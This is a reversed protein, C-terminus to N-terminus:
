HPSKMKCRLLFKMTDVGDAYDWIEPLQAYGPNVQMHGLSSPLSGAAVVCQISEMQSTLLNELEQMSNYREYYLNAVPSSIQASEKVLLFNNDLFKEKNLLYISRYYTYNNFYKNHHIVNGYKVIAAFFKDLNYDKPIFIKSVSRCGLGFYLFIDQGIGDLDACTENGNLVAVANRNKRIIHPYKRFYYEFYRATNNSGTAIYAQASKLPFKTFSIRSQFGPEIECLVESVAPLLFEDDSSLKGLFINGSMLVCLFDHFGVLPINGAMVVGIVAPSYLECDADPYKEVWKRIKDERLMRSLAKLSFLINDETFWGNHKSAKRIVQLLKGDLNKELAKGLEAFAVIRKELNMLWSFKKKDKGQL